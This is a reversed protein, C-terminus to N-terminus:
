TSNGQAPVRKGWGTKNMSTCALEAIVRREKRTHIEGRTGLFIEDFM